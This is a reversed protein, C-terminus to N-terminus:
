GSTRSKASSRPPRARVEQLGAVLRHQVAPCARTRTQGGHETDHETQQQEDQQEQQQQQQQESSRSCRSRRRARLQLAGRRRDDAANGHHGHRRGEEAGQAYNDADMMFLNHNRAFVITKGDPSLAAWRPASRRRTTTTLADVSRPRWTTSSTCRGTRPPQRAAAQRAAAAGSDRSSRIATTMTPRIRGGPRAAAQSRDYRRAKEAHRDDADRPVQSTSSSRRTTRSSSSRRSRCTSRTTRSARSRRSRARGDERSRLAAGQTKKVPDVLYFTRGERTQYPYWFRDGSELWRPTVTTDFVLSASRRRRDLARGPRLETEFRGAIRRRPVAFAAIFLASALCWTLLRRPM